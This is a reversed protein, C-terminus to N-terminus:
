AMCSRLTQGLGAAMTHVCSSYMLRAETSESKRLADSLTKANSVLYKAAFERVSNLHLLGRLGEGGPGCCLVICLDWALENCWASGCGSMDIEQNDGLKEFRERVALGFQFESDFLIAELTEYSRLGAGSAAALYLLERPSSGLGAFDDNVSVSAVLDECSGNGDVLNDCEDLSGSMTVSAALDECSGSIEDRALDINEVVQPAFLDEIDDL